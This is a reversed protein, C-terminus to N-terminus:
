KVDADFSINNLTGIHDANVDTTLLAQLEKPTLRTSPAFKDSKMYHLMSRYFQRGEPYVCASKMDAMCMLLSGKGVALEFVLGLRHNREVNDIVQVIPRYAAPMNDLIFPRSAKIVPFWQWDTHGETPFLAFLPHAPDTLIGLTGPSVPKKNNECITKFMRYNWYDTQMLGGVTLNACMTAKPMFLVKAGQNLKKMVADTLTDTVIIGRADQAMDGAEPYVWLHYSNRYPTGDISVQLNLRMANEMDTLAVSIAGARFVGISDDPIPMAGKARVNGGADTLLWSLTKDKLPYEMYNAIEVIGELQENNTYCLKRTVFLPVVPSCFRSWEQPTTIGKSQMFADLIGVYASGQGPYDQLDLLHFGAMNRTRLDMEIDAKYLQVSWLGSARHFAEDQSGMGARELRSRFVEMNCPRLVGTYKRIESYDPYTQFQGTEHSIVPVPCDAIAKEFTMSTNPYAHNLLGGDFADAFSFSGRTHTNYEGYKEGGIRCTTLYDMGEAYGKYGLYYNSGFTYLHRDDAARFDTVFQKMAAVDGWLENGLAFMVFSPHNGYARLINLGEKHLFTMLLTDKQDFSGWFPLEPQLYVGMEDAVSFCVEPPCWSHFRIHNIGYSKVTTFYARWSDADMPVHATLPFVCADHKGRLFTEHGNIYFHHGGATFSRYGFTRAASDVGAVDAELTYLNPHYESWPKVWTTDIPVTVDYCIGDYSYKLFAPCTATETTGNDKRHIIYLALGREKKMKKSLTVTVRLESHAADPYIQMGSVHVPEAAEIYMRGIVGNWNTQTDETYAHSNAYLQKPVGSGNDVMITIRHKGPSLFSTMDYTQETSIDNNSGVLRGDVYVTTPKTRELHLCISKRKWDEPIDVDRCYWAKGVYSFLRSLHTTEDKASCPVGKRNTDTTGPLTVTESFVSSVSMASNPDLAFQWQGQLDIQHHFAFAGARLTLCCFAALFVFLSKKM